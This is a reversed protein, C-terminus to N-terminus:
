GEGLDNIADILLAGFARNIQDDDVVQLINFVVQDGWFLWAM